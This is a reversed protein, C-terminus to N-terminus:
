ITYQLSYLISYVQICYVQSDWVYEYKNYHATLKALKIILLWYCTKEYLKPNIAHVRSHCLQVQGEGQAILLWESTSNIGFQVRFRIICISPFELYFLTVVSFNYMTCRPFSSFGDIICENPVVVFSLHVCWMRVDHQRLLLNNRTYRPEMQMCNNVFTISIAVVDLKPPPPIWWRDRFDTIYPKDWHIPTILYAATNTNGWGIGGGKIPSYM